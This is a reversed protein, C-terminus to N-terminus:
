EESRKELKIDALIYSAAGAFVYRKVRVIGRRGDATRLLVFHPSSNKDFHKLSAERWHQFRNFDGAQKINEFDEDSLTIGYSTPQHVFSVGLAGAIPPFSSAAAENPAFFYCYNFASNLAFFGFDVKDGLRADAIHKSTVVGGAYASYFCGITNKAENIGLKLDQQFVLGSNPKITLTKEVVKDEKGNSAILRLRYIGAREFRVSPHEAAANDITAGECSWRYSLGGSTRNRTQLTLPAEWDQDVAIPEYDFDAQMAPQLTFSKSLEEYRSGNFVKLHIRHTGGDAFTVASPYQETSSSPSGGEFTWEYRSGGRSKNSISVVGPAIDNIAIAYDFDISMASDVRIVQESIREDVANWVRLRIKHEGAETFTVSEPARDRSSGPVGGEFTWEYEDAGYSNNQLKVTVPSTKDEAITVEFSSAIPIAEEKLCSSLFLLGVVLLLSPLQKTNFNM